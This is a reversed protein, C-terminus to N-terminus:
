SVKVGARSALVQAIQRAAHPRALRQCAQAARFRQEPHRVWDQLALAIQEPHPAWRGAGESVVFSVNGDEQGPLRSYLIMPLGAILAECITGPGAKTVLIDAARMFDPMDHVFGYVFVPIRWPHAELRARLGENRGAIVALTVPSNSTEIAYATKELPGLGQGGGVLLVVPRDQPWGLRSRLTM